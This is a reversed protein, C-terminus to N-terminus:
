LKESLLLYNTEQLDLKGSEDFVNAVFQGFVDVLHPGHGLDLGSPTEAFSAVVRLHRM